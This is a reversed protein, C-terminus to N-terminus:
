TKVGRRRTWRYLGVFMCAMFWAIPIPVLGVMAAASWHGQVNRLYNEGFQEWCPTWIDGDKSRPRARNASLCNDVQASTLKSAENIAWNNGWSGGVLAWIVSLVIGIRIWRGM